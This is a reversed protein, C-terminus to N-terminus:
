LLVDEPKVHMTQFDTRLDIQQWCPNDGCASQWSEGWRCASDTSGFPGVVAVYGPVLDSRMIVVYPKVEPNPLKYAHNPYPPRKISM